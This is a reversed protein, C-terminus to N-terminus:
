MFKDGIHIVLLNEEVVKNCSMLVQKCVPIIKSVNEVIDVWYKNTIDELSVNSIDKYCLLDINEFGILKKSIVSKILHKTSEELENTSKLVIKLKNSKSLYKVKLIRINEDYVNNSDLETKLIQVLSANM